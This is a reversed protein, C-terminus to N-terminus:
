KAGVKDIIFMEYGFIWGTVLRIARIEGLVLRLRGVDERGIARFIPALTLYAAAFVVLQLGLTLARSQIVPIFFIMAASVAASVLIMAVSRLDATASLSRRALGLGLALSGLNSALLAYILGNVGLGLELALLPAAVLILVTGALYLYLTMRTKGAGNFFVPLVGLGVAVPLYALSLLQLYPSAPGFSSTLLAPVLVPASAVLFLAIPVILYSVYKVSLNFALKLDGGTGALSSFAPFLAGGISSSVLAIPVAFNSAAQYLGFVSNSAISALLITVYYTALGSILGGVFVPFGFRVMDVLEPALNWPRLPLRRLKVLYLVAIGAFGSLLFSLVQGDIAGLVGFGAIILGPGIILKAVSQLALSAGALGWMNWGTAAATVASLLTAGLVYLSAVQVNGALQPRSILTSSFLGALAYNLASLVIGFLLLFLIASRTFRKAEDPKGTSSYYASYRTVSVNVGLGVFLTLLGPAVLSLSYTGYGDTGLLRAMIIIAVANVATALFNGVFLILSGRASQKAVDINSVTPQVDIM